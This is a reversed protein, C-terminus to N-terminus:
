IFLYQYQYQYISISLGYLDLQNTTWWCRIWINLNMLIVFQISWCHLRSISVNVSRYGTYGRSRHNSTTGNGPSLLLAHLHTRCWSVSTLILMSMRTYRSNACDVRSQVLACAVVNAMEETLSPRIHRLARIHFFRREACTRLRTISILTGM